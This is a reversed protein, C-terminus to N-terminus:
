EVILTGLMGAAKHGPVNCYYEYTGPPANIVVEETAGPAITVAIGLEDISFDHMTVGDNPLTFTVDTDAPITVEKPEFYIDFSTVTVASAEAPAEGAPEQAAATEDTAADENPTDKNKGINIGLVPGGDRAFAVVEELEPGRDGKFGSRWRLLARETFILHAWPFPSFLHGGLPHYWTPGFAALVRGNDKLLRRMVRLIEAPDEFHEFADLSLIVDAKEDTKTTFTCNRTVGYEAARKRARALSHELIDVGIVKRAGRKAIEVADEGDGCGFDIIVKNTYGMQYLRSAGGALSTIAGSTGILHARGDDFLPRVGPGDMLVSPTANITVVLVVRNRDIRPGDGLAAETEGGLLLVKDRLGDLENDLQRHHEM